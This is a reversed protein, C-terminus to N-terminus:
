QVMRLGATSQRSTGGKATMSFPLRRALATSAARQRLASPQAISSASHSTHASGVAISSNRRAFGLSLFNRSNAQAQQRRTHFRNDPFHWFYRIIASREASPLAFAIANYTAINFAPIAASTACRRCSVAEPVAILGPGHDLMALIARGRGKSDRLVFHSAEVVDNPEESAEQDSAAESTEKRPGLINRVLSELAGKAFEDWL